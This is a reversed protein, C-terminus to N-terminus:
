CIRPAERPTQVRNLMVPGLLLRGDTARLEMVMQDAAAGAKFSLNAAVHQVQGTATYSGFFLSEGSPLVGFEGSYDLKPCGRQLVVKSTDFSVLMDADPTASAYQIPKTGQRDEAAAPAGPCILLAQFPATCVSTAKAGALWLYDSDPGTGSGGTGPGCAGLLLLLASLLLHHLRPIM